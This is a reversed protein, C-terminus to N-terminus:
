IGKNKKNFFLIGYEKTLAIIQNRWLVFDIIQNLKQGNFNKFKEYSNKISNFLILGDDSALWFENENEQIVKRISHLEKFKDDAYGTFFNQPKQFTDNKLRLINFGNKPNGTYSIISYSNKSDSDKAICHKFGITEYFFQYDHGNKSASNTNFKYVFQQTNWSGVKIWLYGETDLHIISYDNLVKKGNHNIWFREFNDKDRRYCHIAEYTAFWINGKNDEFLPSQINNDFLSTSDNPINQYLKFNVGDFRNLGNISSIWTFGKIDKLFYTNYSSSLGSKENYNHFYYNPKQAIIAQM